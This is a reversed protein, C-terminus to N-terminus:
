IKGGANSGNIDILSNPAQMQNQWALLRNNWDFGTRGYQAFSVECEIKQKVLKNALFYGAEQGTFSADYDAFIVLKKCIAPPQFSRLNNANLLAWVPLGIIKSASKANEIGEAIGMTEAAADIRIASGAPYDGRSLIRDKYRKGGSIPTQHLTVPKGDSDYVLALLGPTGILDGKFTVRRDITRFDKGPQWDCLGRNALYKSVLDSEVIPKAALWLANRMEDNLETNDPEVTEAPELNDIMGDIETAADHFDRGTM